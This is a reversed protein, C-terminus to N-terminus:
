IVDGETVGALGLYQRVAKRYEIAAERQAPSLGVSRAALAQMALIEDYHRQPALAQTVSRAHRRHGNRASADWAIKGGARCIEIYLRWDGAVKFDYLDDGVADLAALLAERRWVVASVNLIINKVSLFRRLFEEGEMVFSEDFAGAQVKNLEFRYSEGLREDASGIQWSDSFAVAAGSRSMMGVLSELFTEDAVDDAEAIWIYEGRALDVAKRWQRFVSGSNQQNEVIQANREAHSLFGRLVAVSDDTSCDDLVITEFVPYTQRFVSRLRDELYNMYNYNPVAVSVSLLDPRAVRAIFLGYSDFQFESEVVRRRDRALAEAEGPNQDLDSVVASVAADLDARDVSVGFRRIVDDSWGAGDLGVVPLGAALAELVPSSASSNRSTLLFLDAAACLRSIDTAHSVLFFRDDLRGSTTAPQYIPEIAEYDLDVWLFYLNKHLECAKQGIKRFIEFGDRDEGFGGGIVIKCDPPFNLNNRIEFKSSFTDFGKRKGLIPLRNFITGETPGFISSFKRAVSDEAFVLADAEAVASGANTEVENTQPLSALEHVLVVTRMGHNLFEPLIWGSEATNIVAHRYGMSDLADITSRLSSLDGPEILTVPGLARYVELLPGDGLLIVHLEIGFQHVFLHALNRLLVQAWDRHADHGVLVLKCRGSITTLGTLARATANLYASGYHVDPELYAAEAWGNWANVAVFQEGFVSRENSFQVLRSLWREYKAPTVGHLITSRGPQSAHNDWSPCAAKILPFDPAPEKTSRAVLDDYSLVHGSFERDLITLQNNITQLSSTYKHPLIEIAGDLGHVRPDVDGNEQAGFILPDVQFEDKWRRRWSSITEASDQTRDLRSIFFLPRDQIRIFRPDAFHRALDALFTTEDEQETSLERKAKKWTKDSEQIMWILSFSMEIEPSALFSELPSGHRDDGACSYYHFCFGHVAAATALDVQDQLNQKSLRDYFGLERPLRPQYHGEFRPLASAVKGWKTSEINRPRDSEEVDCFQPDYFAILKARPKCSRSISRDLIESVPGATVFRNHERYTKDRQTQPTVVVARAGTEADGLPDRGENRGRDLYHVFPNLGSEAVDSNARLYGTTSFWKTPDRGEQWGHLLYHAVLNGAPARGPVFNRIYYEIDFVAAVGVYDHADVGKSVLEDLSIASSNSSKRGESKGYLLYHAFPNLETHVVDPYMQLYELSSFERNPNRGERWGVKLFHEFPDVSSNLMANAQLYYESDFSEKMTRIEIIRRELFKIFTNVDIYQRAVAESMNLYRGENLVRVQLTNRPHFYDRKKSKILQIVQTAASEDVNNFDFRFGAKSKPNILRAIDDRFIGTTSRGVVIRFLLIETIIKKTPDTDSIAWGWVFRGDFGDINGQAVNLNGTKSLRNKLLKLRKLKM